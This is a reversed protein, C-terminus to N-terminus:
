QWVGPIKTGCVPCRGNEIRNLTVKMGIRKILLANCNPCYTNEYDKGLVNGIYVFDLYEKVVERAKELFKVDTAKTYLMKYAPFFRTLHLPVNGVEERIWKAMEKIEELNDNWKPIILNTLEIWIGLKKYMKIRDLVIDFKVGGSLELYFKENFAKIDINAADLYKAIEKLPEKEIYGNTVFVTKLNNKKALKSVDYAFEYFVTPENYTFAVGICDNRLTERIVQPVTLIMLPFENYSSQSIEWNQCFKCSFNCGVTGISYIYSGPFFHFLPKKEIPDIGVSAVREYVMSYLKGNVNKRVKCFGLGNNPILCHRPCLNCQVTKNGIKKYFLAEKM